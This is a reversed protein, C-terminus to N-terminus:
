ENEILKEYAEEPSINYMQAMRELTEDLRKEAEASRERPTLKLFAEIMELWKREMLHSMDNNRLKPAKSHIYLCDRMQTLSIVRYCVTTGPKEM